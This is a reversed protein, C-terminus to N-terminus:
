GILSCSLRIPKKCVCDSFSFLVTAFRISVAIMWYRFGNPYSVLRTLLDTYGVVLLAEVCFGLDLGMGKTLSEIAM